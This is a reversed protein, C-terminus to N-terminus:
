SRPTYFRYVKRLIAALQKKEPKETTLIKAHADQVQFDGSDFLTTIRNKELYGVNYNNSVILPLRNNADFLNSGETYDAYPNNCAFLEKLITPTIDYHSTLYQFDKHEKGPWHIILPVQLQYKSFNNSHGWYYQKNDNFEEGHDGSIIVLSNEWLGEKKITELLLAVQNDIFNAANLYRNFYGATDSNNM